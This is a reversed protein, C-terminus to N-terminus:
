LSKSKKTFRNRDEYATQYHAASSLAEWFEASMGNSDGLKELEDMAGMLHNEALHRKLDAARQASAPLLARAAELFKRVKAEKEARTQSRHRSIIEDVKETEVIRITIEDGVKVSSELWEIHEDNKLGGVRFSLSPPGNLIANLVKADGAVCKKEGNIHIEFAIM